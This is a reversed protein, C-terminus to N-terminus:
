RASIVSVPGLREDEKSIALIGTGLGNDELIMATAENRSRVGLKSFASSLHSKVTSEALFLKSAIEANSFGLVIMGLIQKERVSLRPPAVIERAEHPLSLLGACVGRVAAPLCEELRDNVVFGVVGAALAHRIGRRDGTAAIVVVPVGAAEEVLARLHGGHLQTPRLDVV